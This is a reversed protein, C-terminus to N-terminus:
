HENNAQEGNEGFLGLRSPVEVEVPSVTTTKVTSRDFLDLQSQAEPLNSIDPTILSVTAVNTKKRSHSSRGNQGDASYYYYYTMDDRRRRQKNAVCGLVHAGARTLIVKVQKLNGKNARTLDAVLLTGDAKSALISADSLGLLPPTDFIVVEAGCNVLAALLSQMAKSDLLEPPNPPLPGSPMVCLNPIDVAHVFPALSPTKTVIPTSSPATSMTPTFVQQFAPAHATAPMSFALIANSFGMAHAPIGFQEHQTPLRLDADILLTNKGARAMFIALNAAVVSKGDRPLASTVVLTRLPKDIASFGINTRLIRYPEVNVSHKMPNILDEKSKARWITALVSWDLLQTLAEPTRIRTDLREFLTALLMGIFLGALLGIGTNLLLNPRVPDLAPQAPQAIQLMDEGQAEALELQALVAEWQSYHQRLATLQTQLAAIQPENGGKAHLVAIRAAINSIQQQTANLDGQLQQQSQINNKQLIQLQRKILTEAIDNALDAARKPSPDVVDIEFLQTNLTPTATVERSLEVVTLGQYHSAVERLVPDSTALKAETQVLQDSALLSYYDAQNNSSRIAIQILVTSQYLPTLLRSGILAGVGVVLFCIIILSWRKVIITWYQELTMHEIGKEQRMYVLEEEATM